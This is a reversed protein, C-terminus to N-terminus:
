CKGPGNINEEVVVFRRVPRAMSSHPRLKILRPGTYRGNKKLPTMNIHVDRNVDVHCDNSACPRTPVPAPIPPTIIVPAPTPPTIIVPKPTPPSVVAPNKKWEKNFPVEEFSLHEPKAPNCNKQRMFNGDVMLCLNTSTNKVVHYSVGWYSRNAPWRRNRAHVLIFDFNTNGEPNKSMQPIPNGGVFNLYKQEYYSKLKINKTQGKTSEWVSEALACNADLVLDNNRYAVCRDDYENRIIFYGGIVNSSKNSAIKKSNLLHVTVIQSLLLISIVIANLHKQTQM